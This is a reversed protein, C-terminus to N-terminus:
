GNKRRAEDAELVRYIELVKRIRDGEVDLNDGKVLAQGVANKFAGESRERSERGKRRYELAEEMLVAALKSLPIGEGEAMAKLEAHKEPSVCAQVTKYTRSRATM